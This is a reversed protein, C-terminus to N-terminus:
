CTLYGRATFSGATTLVTWSNNSPDFVTVTKDFISDSVGGILYIKGNAVCSAAGLPYAFAINYPTNLTNWINTQPDYVQMYNYQNIKKGEGGFVYIKGNVENAFQGDRAIFGVSSKTVWHDLGQAFLMLPSTFSLFFLIFLTKM